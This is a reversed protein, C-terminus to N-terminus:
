IDLNLDHKQCCQCGKIGNLYKKRSISMSKIYEIMFIILKNYLKGILDEKLTIKPWLNHTIKWGFHKSEPLVTKAYKFYWFM